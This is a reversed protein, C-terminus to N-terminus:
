EYDEQTEEEEANEPESDVDYLEIPLDYGFVTKVQESFEKLCVFFANKSFQTIQDNQEIENSILHEKKEGVGLNQIGLFERLENELSCKYNYLKDINYVAGSNFAKIRDYSEIPIFIFPKGEEMDSTIRKITAEDEPSIPIMMPTRIAQLNQYISIECEVIKDVIESVFPEIPKKNKQIFGLVVDRDVKQPTSPIWKVGRKNILTVDVPYDYINYNYGGWETFVLIGNPSEDSGITEKLHFCAITGISWFQRLVYEKQQYDLTPFHIRTQFINYYKNMYFMRLKKRFALNDKRRKKIETIM